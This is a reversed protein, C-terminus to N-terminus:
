FTQNWLLGSQMTMELLNFAPLLCLINCQICPLVYEFKNNDTKKKEDCLSIVSDKNKNVTTTPVNQKSHVEEIICCRLANGFELRFLQTISYHHLKGRFIKM